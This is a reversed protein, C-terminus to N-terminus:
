LSMHMRPHHPDNTVSPGGEFAPLRHLTETTDIQKDLFDLRLLLVSM